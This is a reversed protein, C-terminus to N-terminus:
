RDPSMTPLRIVILKFPSDTRQPGYRQCIVRNNHAHQIQAVTFADGAARRYATTISDDIM